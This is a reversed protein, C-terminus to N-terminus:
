GGFCSEEGEKKNKDFKGKGDAQIPFFCGEKNRFYAADRDCTIACAKGKVVFNKGGKATVHITYNFSGKYKKGAITIGNWGKEKLNDRTILQVQYLLTTEGSAADEKDIVLYEFHSIEDNFVALFVDSIGDGNPTFANPVYLYGKSGDAFEPIIEVPEVGCCAQYAKIPDDDQTCATFSSILYCCVIGLKLTKM